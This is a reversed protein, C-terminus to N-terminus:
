SINIPLLTHVTLFSTDSHIFWGPHWSYDSSIIIQFSWLLCTIVFGLIIVHFLFCFWKFTQLTTTSWPSIYEASNRVILSNWACAALFYAELRMYFSFNIVAHLPLIINGKFFAKNIKSFDLLKNKLTPFASVM